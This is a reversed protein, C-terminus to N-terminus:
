SEDNKTPPKVFAFPTPLLPFPHQVHQLPAFFYNNLYPAYLLSNMAFPSFITPTPPLDAALRKAPPAPSHQPSTTQSSDGTSSTSPSPRKRDNGERFGKAFPNHDIKLQTVANNQYATVAIFETYPLRITAIPVSSQTPTVFPPSTAALEFVELQPIYKHMSQLFIQLLSTQRRSSNDAAASRAARRVAMVSPFAVFIHSQCTDNPNNTIKVREFNVTSSMWQRGSMAGDAHIVKKPEAPSEGRGSSVWEGGSFKYRLDDVQHVKLVLAYCSDPNLGSLVYELKPFMKRGSKTVVMETTHRHFQRWLSDQAETLRVSVNSMKTQPQEPWLTLKGPVGGVEGGEGRRKGSRLM